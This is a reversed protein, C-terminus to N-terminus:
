FDPSIEGLLRGIDGMISLWAEMDLRLSIVQGASLEDKLRQHGYLTTQIALVYVACSYWTTDLSKLSQLAQVCERMEHCVRMCIELNENNFEASRTLSLSPHRLLLRFEAAWFNLYETHIRQTPSNSTPARRLEVHWQERWQQLKYELGRVSKIYNQDSRHAAYVENYLEIFIPAVKFAEIGVLFSCKGNRSTDSGADTLLEDDYPEPIEVDFDELRIPMPRGQKGCITVHIVLISWFIRKRMEVQLIDKDGTATAWRRASKHLGLEIAKTFTLNAVIWSVEPKPFTRVYTAIMTLAQVDQLSHGSVLEPLLGVCYHFHTNARNYMDVQSANTEPNRTASQFIMYAFVM